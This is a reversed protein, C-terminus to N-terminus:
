PEILLPISGSTSVECYEIEVSSVSPVGSLISMVLLPPVVCFAFLVIGVVGRGASRVAPKLTACSARSAFRSVERWCCSAAEVAKKELAVFLGFPARKM